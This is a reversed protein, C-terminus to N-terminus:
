LDDKRTLINQKFLEIALRCAADEPTDAVLVESKAKMDEHWWSFYQACWEDTNCAAIVLVGGNHKHPLKRLLYGLDYAPTDDAFIKGAQVVMQKEPVRQEDKDWWFYTDEWGSLELLEKCLELSAVNM